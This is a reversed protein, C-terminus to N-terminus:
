CLLSVRERAAPGFLLKRALAPVLGKWDPRATSLSHARCTESASSRGTPIQRDHPNTHLISGGNSLIEKLRKCDLSCKSHRHSALSQM